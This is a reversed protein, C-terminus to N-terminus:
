EDNFLHILLEKKREKSMEIPETTKVRGMHDYHCDASVYSVFSATRSFVSLKCKEVLEVSCYINDSDTINKRSTIEWSTRKYKVQEM